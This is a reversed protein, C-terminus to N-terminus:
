RALSLVLLILVVAVALGVGSSLAIGFFADKALRAKGMEPVPKHQM